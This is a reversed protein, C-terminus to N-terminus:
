NLSILSVPGIRNKVMLVYIYYYYLLLIILIIYSVRKYEVTTVEDRLWTLLKNSDSYMERKIAAATSREKARAADSWPLKGCIMDIFVHFISCLDDRPCQDYGEHVFPSAYVTTGRFEAQEKMPRM